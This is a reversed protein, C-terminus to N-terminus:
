DGASKCANTIKTSDQTLQSILTNVSSPHSALSGLARQVSGAFDNVAATLTANGSSAAEQKLQNTFATVAPKASSPNSVLSGLTSPAKALTAQIKQCAAAVGSATPSAPASSSASAPPSTTSKASPSSSGCGAAFITVAALAPIVTFGRVAHRDM